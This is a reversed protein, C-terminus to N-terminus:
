RKLSLMPLAVITPRSKSQVALFAFHPAHADIVLPWDEFTEHLKMSGIQAEFRGQPVGFSLLLRTGDMPAPVRRAKASGNAEFVAGGRPCVTLSCVNIQVDAAPEPGRTQVYQKQVHAASIESLTNTDAVGFSFPLDPAGAPFDLLVKVNSIPVPNKGLAFWWQDCGGYWISNSSRRWQWPKYGSYVLFSCSAFQWQRVLIGVTLSWLKYHSHARAGRPRAAEATDVLTGRWSSPRWAAQELKRSVACVTTMITPCLVFSFANELAGSGMTNFSAMKWQLFQPKDERSFLSRQISRQKGFPLYGRAPALIREFHKISAETPLSAGFTQLRLLADRSTTEHSPQTFFVLSYRTGAFDEVFHGRAGDLMCLATRTDLAVPEAGASPLRRVDAIEGDDDPYHMLRGGSFTGFSKTMSVSM